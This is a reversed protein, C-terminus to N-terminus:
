NLKMLIFSYLKACTLVSNNPYHFLLLSMSSDRPVQLDQWTKIEMPFNQIAVNFGDGLTDRSFDQHLELTVWEAKPKDRTARERPHGCSTSWPGEAGESVESAGLPPKVLSHSQAAWAKAPSVGQSLHHQAGAAGASPIGEHILCVVPVPEPHTVPHSLLCLPERTHPACPSAPSLGLRAAAPGPDAELVLIQHSQTPQFSESHTCLAMSSASARGHGQQSGELWSCPEQSNLCLEGHVAWDGKSLVLVSLLRVDACGLITPRSALILVSM